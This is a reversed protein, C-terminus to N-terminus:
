GASQTKVRTRSRLSQFSRDSMTNCERARLHASSIVIVALAILVLVLSLRLTLLQATFGIIVPGVLLGAYGLTVVRSMATEASVGGIRGAASYIAPVLNAIGIGCAVLAPMAAWPAPVALVIALSVVSVASGTGVLVSPGFINSVIDGGLRGVALAAGFLSFAFAATSESLRVETVMYVATWDMLAGEAFLALFALIGIALIPRRVTEPLKEGTTRRDVQAGVASSARGALLACAFMALVAVAFGNAGLCWGLGGGAQLIQSCTWAGAFAGISFAAHFSSMIHRAARQEIRSAQTNMSVELSGFSGGALAVILTLSAFNSFLPVIALSFGFSVAGALSLGRTGLRRMLGPSSRMAVIAGLAFGLLVLGLESKELAFRAQVLPLSAAWAGIGIGGATFFMTCATRSLM